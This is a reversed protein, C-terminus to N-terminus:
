ILNKLELCGTERSSKMMIEEQEESVSSRKRSLRSIVLSFSERLKLILEVGRTIKTKDM